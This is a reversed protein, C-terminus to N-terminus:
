DVIDYAVYHVRLNESYGFRLNEDNRFRSVIRLVDLESGYLYLTGGVEEATMLEVCETLTKAIAQAKKDM